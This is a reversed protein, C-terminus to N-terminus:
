VSTSNYPRFILTSRGEERTTMQFFFIVFLHHHIKCNSLHLYKLILKQRTRSAMHFKNACNHRLALPGCALPCKALLIRKQPKVLQQGLLALSSFVNYMSMHSRIWWKFYRYQYAINRVFTRILTTKISAHTCFCFLTYSHFSTFGRQFCVNWSASVSGIYVLCVEHGSQFESM